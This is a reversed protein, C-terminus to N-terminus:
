LLRRRTTEVVVPVRLGGHPTDDNDADTDSDSDEHMAFLAIGTQAGAFITGSFFWLLAAGLLGDANRTLLSGLGMVDFWILGAVFVASLAFGILSHRIYFKVLTPM